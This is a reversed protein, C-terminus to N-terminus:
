GNVLSGDHHLAIVYGYYHNYHRYEYPTGGDEVYLTSITLIEYDGNNDLDVVVPPCVFWVNYGHYANQYFPNSYITVEM